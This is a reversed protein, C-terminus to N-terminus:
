AGKSELLADVGVTGRGRPLVILPNVEAAALLGYTAAGFASLAAIARAAADFDFPGTGRFGDLLAGARTERLMLAAAEVSVPGVRLAAEGLLEVHVGGLGVVTLSGFAPDNRIGVIPEVGAGAMPQVIFTMGFAGPRATLDAFASKVAAANPLGLRVLGRETKHAVDAGSAKLAVPYGVREAAAAAEGASRVALTEIM